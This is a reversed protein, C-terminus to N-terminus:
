THKETLSQLRAAIGEHIQPPEVGLDNSSYDSNFHHGARQGSYGLDLNHMINDENGGVIVDYSLKGAQGKNPPDIRISAVGQPLDPSQVTITTRAQRTESTQAGSRSHIDRRFKKPRIFFEVKDYKKGDVEVNQARFSYVVDPGHVGDDKHNTRVKAESEVDRTYDINGEGTEKIVSAIQNVTEAVKLYDENGSTDESYQSLSDLGIDGLTHSLSTIVHEVGSKVKAAKEAEMDENRTPHHTMSKEGKKSYLASTTAKKMDITENEPFFKIGRNREEESRKVGTHKYLEDQLSKIRAQKQTETSQPELGDVNEEVM